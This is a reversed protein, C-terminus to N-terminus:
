GEVARALARALVDFCGNWGTHTEDRIKASEFNEHTFLMETAAGRDFLEVTVLSEGSPVHDDPKEPYRKWSWTFVLKEPPQVERFTGYGVYKGDPLPIEMVYHGGPRVDLEVYKPNHSPVDKCMWQELRERETWAAWVKERPAQFVRRLQLSMESSGPQSTM